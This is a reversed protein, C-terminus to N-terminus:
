AVRFVENRAVFALLWGGLVRLQSRYARIAALKTRRDGGALWVETRPGPMGDGRLVRDPDYVPPFPYLGHDAHVVYEWRAYGALAEAAAVGVAHHTENEDGPWPSAVLDAGSDVAVRRLLSRLAPGTYPARPAVAEAYPVHDAGTFPSRVPESSRVVASLVHDPFGLFVARAGLTAAAAGAESIRQRGLALYDDAGPAERGTWAAAARPYGDGATVYCVTAEDARRILGACALAEDDPHPALVLVRM